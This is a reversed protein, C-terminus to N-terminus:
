VNVAVGVLVDVPVGVGVAVIVLVGVMVGEGVAALQTGLMLPRTSTM